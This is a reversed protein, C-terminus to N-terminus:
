FTDEHKAITLIFASDKVKRYVCRYNMTISFEWKDVTGKILKHRLSPHRSNEMLTDLCWYFKERIQKSLGKKSKLKKKLPAPIHIERIM